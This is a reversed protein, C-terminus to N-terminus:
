GRNIPLARLWVAMKSSAQSTNQISTTKTESVEFHFATVSIMCPRSGRKRHWKSKPIGNRQALSIQKNSNRCASTRTTSPLDKWAVSNIASTLDNLLQGQKHQNSISTSKDPRAPNRTILNSVPEWQRNGNTIQIAKKTRNKSTIDAAWQTSPIHNVRTSRPILSTHNKAVSSKLSTVKGNEQSNQNSNELLLLM